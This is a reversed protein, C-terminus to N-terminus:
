SQDLFRSRTDNEGVSSSNEILSGKGLNAITNGYRPGEM